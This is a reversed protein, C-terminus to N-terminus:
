SEVTLFRPDMALFGLGFVGVRRGACDAGVAQMATPALM